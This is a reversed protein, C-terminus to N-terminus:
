CASSSPSSQSVAVPTTRNTPRRVAREARLNAGPRDQLLCELAAAAFRRFGRPTRPNRWALSPTFRCLSPTDNKHTSGKQDFPICVKSLPNGSSFFVRGVDKAVRTLSSVDVPQCAAADLIGLAKSGMMDGYRRLELAQQHRCPLHSHVQPSERIFSVVLQITNRPAM